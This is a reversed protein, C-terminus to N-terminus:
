GAQESAMLAAVAREIRARVDGQHAGDRYRVRPWFFGKLGDGKRRPIVHVHVHPVSQSVGNNIALFTGEADLASQVARSLLRAAQFLPGVQAVPLDALFPHHERPVLLVHGPFLPRHDLFAITLADAYVTEAAKAGSAIECFVCAKAM